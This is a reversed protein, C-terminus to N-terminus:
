GPPLGSCRNYHMMPGFHEGGPHLTSQVRAMFQWCRTATERGFAGNIFCARAMTDTTGLRFWILPHRFGLPLPKGSINHNWNIQEQICWSPYLTPPIVRYNATLTSIPWKLINDSRGALWEIVPQRNGRRFGVRSGLTISTQRGTVCEAITVDDNGHLWFPCALSNNSYCLSGLRTMILWLLSWM